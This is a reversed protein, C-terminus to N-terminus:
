TVSGTHDSDFSLSSISYFVILSVFSFGSSFPMSLTFSVFGVDFSVITKRMYLSCFVRKDHFSIIFCFGFKIDVFEIFAAYIASISIVGFSKIEIM